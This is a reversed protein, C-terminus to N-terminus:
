RTFERWGGGAYHQITWSRGDTRLRVTGWEATSMLPLQLRAFREVAAQSPHGFPNHRGASVVAIRAPFAQLFETSSSRSSGHHSVKLLTIPRGDAWLQREEDEGIDGPLLIRTDGFSLEVM